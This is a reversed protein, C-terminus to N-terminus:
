RSTPKNKHTFSLDQKIQLWIVQTHNYVAQSSTAAFQNNWTLSFSIHKNIQLTPSVIIRNQDFVNYVIDRGANIFIEDGLYLLIKKGPNSKSLNVLPIGAIFSYRFRFNFSGPHLIKGSTVPNFFREEVRFRHSFSLTGTKNHIALEEFPRFEIKDMKASAYYGLNAFGGAVHINSSISYALAARAIYQVRHRFNDGVRYGGDAFLSWKRALALQGYYQVWQQNGEKVTKRQASAIISIGTLLVFIGAKIGKM